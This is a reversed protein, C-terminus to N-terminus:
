YVKDSINSKQAGKAMLDEATVTVILLDGPIAKFTKTTTVYGTHSDVILPLNAPHMMAINENMSSNSSFKSNMFTKNSLYSHIMKMNYSRMEIGSAEVQSILAGIQVDPFLTINPTNLSIM